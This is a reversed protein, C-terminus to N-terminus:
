ISFFFLCPLLSHSWLNTSYPPQKLMAIKAKGPVTRHEPYHSCACPWPLVVKLTGAVLRVEKWASFSAFAACDRQQCTLQDDAGYRLPFSLSQPESKFYTKHYLDQFKESVDCISTFLIKKKFTDSCGHSCNLKKFSHIDCSCSTCMEVTALVNIDSIQVNHEHTWMHVTFCFLQDVTSNNLWRVLPSLHQM